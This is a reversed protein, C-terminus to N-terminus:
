KVFPSISASLSVSFCLSFNLGKSFASYPCLKDGSKYDLASKDLAYSSEM